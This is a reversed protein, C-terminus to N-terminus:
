AVTVTVTHVANRARTMPQRLGRADTARAALTCSGSRTPRWDFSFRQWSWQRRPEVRAPSWNQGGDLSIEVGVIGAAAWAWGWIETPGRALLGSAPAPAVILAEPPAEWVPNTGAGSPDPDNYLMTTFPSDARREAPELRWLWKVTNTGYYGPIILRLPFGHEPALPEGNIEYALLVGGEGLRALPMDKVYWRARIDEYEGHDLGYAWLFRAEPRIGCGRLLDALDVGRWIVNAVRRMALDPRRPAGACQHFSEVQRAPLSLIDSYSLTASWEVLGSIELRWAAADVRPIGLHALVFLDRQATVPETTQHPEQVVRRTYGTPDLPAAFPPPSPMESTM